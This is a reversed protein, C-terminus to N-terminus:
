ESKEFIETRYFVMGTDLMKIQITSEGDCVFEFDKSLYGDLCAESVLTTTWRCSHHNHYTEKPEEINQIVAEGGNVSFACRMDHEKTTPRSPLFKVRAKYVGPELKVNFRIAPAKDTDEYSEARHPLLYAGYGDVSLGKEVIMKTVGDGPVIEHVDNLTYIADPTRMLDQYQEETTAHYAFRTTRIDKIRIGPDRQCITLTHQGPKFEVEQLNVWDWPEDGKYKFQCTIWPGDDIKALISGGNLLRTNVFMQIFGPRRAEFTFIARGGNERSCVEPSSATLIENKYEWPTTTQGEALPIYVPDIPDSFIGTSRVPERLVKLNRPKYSMIHNWKGDGLQNYERTLAKVKEFAAKALEFNEDSKEIQSREKELASRRTMLIKKNHAAVAVVPYYVLHFYAVDLREPLRDRLAEAKEAIANYDAMRKKSEEENYVTHGIHEPKGRWAL